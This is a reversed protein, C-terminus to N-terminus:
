PRPGRHGLCQPSKDKQIDLIDLFSKRGEYCEDLLELLVPVFQESTGGNAILKVNFNEQAVFKSVPICNMGHPLPLEEDDKTVVLVEEVPYYKRVDKYVGDFSRGLFMIIM